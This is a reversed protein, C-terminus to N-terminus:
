AVDGIEMLTKLYDAGKDTIGYGAGGLAGDDTMLGNLYFAFGRDTLSRCAARVMDKTLWPDQVFYGLHFAWGSRDFARDRSEEMKELIYRDVTQQAQQLLSEIQMEGAPDFDWSHGLQAYPLPVKEMQRQDIPTIQVHYGEGDRPMVGSLTTNEGTKAASILAEGLRRLAEPTGYIECDGHHHSQPLIHLLSAAVDDHWIPDRKMRNETMM